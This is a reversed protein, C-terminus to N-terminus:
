RTRAELRYYWRRVSEGESAQRGLKVAMQPWFGSPLKGARGPRAKAIERDVSAKDDLNPPRGPGIQFGRRRLRPRWGAWVEDLTLSLREAVVGAHARLREESADPNHDLFKGLAVLSRGHPTTVAETLRPGDIEVLRLRHETGAPSAYWARMRNSHDPKTKGRGARGGARARSARVQAPASNLKAANERAKVRRRETETTVMPVSEGYRARLREYAAEPPAAGQLWRTVTAPTVGLQRAFIRQSLHEEELKIWLFRAFPTPAPPGRRMSRGMAVSDTYLLNKKPVTESAVPFGNRV